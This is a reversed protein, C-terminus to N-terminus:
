PHHGGREIYEAATTWETGGFHGGWVDAPSGPGDSRLWRVIAAREAAVAKHISAQLRSLEAIHQRMAVPCDDGYDEATVGHPEITLGCACQLLTTGPTALLRHSYTM